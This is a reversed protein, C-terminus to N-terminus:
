RAIVSAGWSLKGGRVEEDHVGQRRLELVTPTIAAIRADVRARAYYDLAQNKKLNNLQVLAQEPRGSLYAAEAWAEGARAPDGAIENARAYAQQFPLDNSANGLLPRLVAVARQGAAHTNREGLLRAYSLALARHTPMRALMSEFRRDAEAAKGTHAETEGLAIQLWLNNPHAQALPTLEQLADSNQGILQHALALGYRQSENLPQKARMQQYERIAQMPTSASFVRLRERAWGYDGTDGRVQRPNSPLTLQMGAPLLPNNGPLATPTNKLNAELKAARERAESIRALTLPHTQLYGPVAAREDGQNMRVVGQLTQFFDAMAEPNYGANALTRIGIRDAEAENDRTYDIQRQQLLGMGTMLAASTADGTSNGGAKQAAIIAGLTALLIPLSERQAKEAGRLVHQQTVHSIEHALVGAVEDEEDAALILGSNVAVYGGLTAFANIQRERLLFFTFPQQPKNSAAALRQGVDNLWGDLLPDDLVYGEHRLQALVMAGYEAQKAPSLVSGASSGIDPLSRDQAAAGATIALACAFAIPLLRPKMRVAHLKPCLKPHIRSSCSSIQAVIGM